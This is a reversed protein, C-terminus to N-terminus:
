MLEREADWVPGEGLEARIDWVLQPSALDLSVPKTESM